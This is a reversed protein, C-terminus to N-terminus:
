NRQLSDELKEQIEKEIDGTLYVNAEEAEKQIKIAAQEITEGPEVIDKYVVNQLWDSVGWIEIDGSLQHCLYDIEHKADEAEETLKGVYNNGDWVETHGDYVKELLPKIEEIFMDIQEGTMNAPISWHIELGHWHRVTTGSGINGNYRARVEGDVDLSIYAPQAQFQGNYKCYVPLKEDKYERIDLKQSEMNPEKKLGYKHAM